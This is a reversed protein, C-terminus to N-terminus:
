KKPLLFGSVAREPNLMYQAAQLVDAHSVAEIYSGWNQATKLEHGTALWAGVFNALRRQNDKLYVSDALLRNKAAEIEEPTLQAKGKAFDELTKNLQLYIKKLNKQTRKQKPTLWIQISLEGPGRKDIDLGGGVFSAIKKDM